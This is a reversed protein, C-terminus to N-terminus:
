GSFDLSKPLQCTESPSPHACDDAIGITMFKGGRWGGKLAYPFSSGRSPLGGSYV